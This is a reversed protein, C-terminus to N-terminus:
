SDLDHLSELSQPRESLLAGRQPLREAELGGSRFQTMGGSREFQHIAVPIMTPSRAPPFPAQALAHIAQSGIRQDSGRQLM